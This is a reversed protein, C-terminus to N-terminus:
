ARSHPNTLYITVAQPQRTSRGELSARATKKSVPRVSSRRNVRWWWLGLASTLLLARALGLQERCRACSALHAEADAAPRQGDDIAGILDDLTDYDV